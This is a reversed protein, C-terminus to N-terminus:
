EYVRVETENLEILDYENFLEDIRIFHLEILSLLKKNVINGTTVLLLKKPSGQLLYSDLFDSDKTIIIYNEKSAIERIEKDSTREKNPLQDTHLVKFGKEKLLFTLKFPLNADILYTV